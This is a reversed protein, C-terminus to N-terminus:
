DMEKLTAQLALYRTLADLGIRYVDPGFGFVVGVCVPALLDVKRFDERAMINSVHVEVAPPAAALADRLAVSTHTFGGPNLVIGDCTGISAHIEDILVGEHNSQAIRLQVGREKAWARLAHDIEELTTRGYVEPERFGFLNTNPGHLVLILVASIRRRRREATL